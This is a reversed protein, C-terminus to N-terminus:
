KRQFIRFIDDIQRRSFEGLVHYLNTDWLELHVNRELIGKYIAFIWYSSRGGGM